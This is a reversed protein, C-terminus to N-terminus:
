LSTKLYEMSRKTNTEFIPDNATPGLANCLVGYYNRSYKSVDM